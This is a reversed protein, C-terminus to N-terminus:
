RVGARRAAFAAARAAFRVGQKAASVAAPDGSLELIYRGPVVQGALGFALLLLVITSKVLLFSRGRCRAASDTTGHSMSGGRPDALAQFQSSLRMMAPFFAIRTGGAQAECSISIALQPPSNRLRM